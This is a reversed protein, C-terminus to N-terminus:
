GLVKALEKQLRTKLRATQGISYRITQNNRLNFPLQDFATSCIQIVPRGLAEAYGAEHCVNARTDSLDAVVVKAKRILDKIQQVVDGARGSHDVRDATGHLALTAPQIAVLFTDDYKGYFPMSAFLRKSTTAPQKTLAKPKKKKGSVLTSFKSLATKLNKTSIVEGWSAFLTATSPTVVLAGAVQSLEAYVQAQRVARATSEPGPRWAKAEVVIQDGRQTTVLFDSQTKGVVVDKAFTIGYRRLQEEVSREFEQEKTM